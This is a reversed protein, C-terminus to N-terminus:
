NHNGPDIEFVWDMMQCDSGIGNPCEQKSGRIRWVGDDLEKAYYGYENYEGGFTKSWQKKGHADTKLIWVDYNGNGFSSTSGVILFGGDKALELSYAKDYGKGGFLQVWEENNNPFNKTLLIDGNGKGYDESTTSVQIYGGDAMYKLRNSQEPDIKEIRLNKIRNFSILMARVHGTEDYDPKIQYDYLLLADKQILELTSAEDKGYQQFILQSAKDLTITFGADVSKSYYQGTLANLYNKSPSFTVLKKYVSVASGPNALILDGDGFGIKISSNQEVVYISGSDKVLKIPNNNAKKWFLGDQSSIIKVISGKDNQYEGLISEVSRDSSFADTDLSIAKDVEKEPLVVSALKDAIYGSWITGNNSMVVVSLKQDPYRAIQAHYSGTGGSHHVAPYGLRDELELGYGYTDIEANEIPKQSVDLLRNGEKKANQIAIEFRLQDHLTTFLFGDGYLNTLMPYQQWIGNGWDSYPYAIDPIVHMYDKLFSTNKMGLSGFINKAYDHFPQGSVEAIIKTLLTYNSNSYLYESGPKFNLDNQKELLEIAYDNDLGEQRWWPDQQVSMLDYFDRIGSSHNLMHKIKITEEVEAYMNPLYKRMDDELSMKGDLILQLACLATFQKAVSAINFRSHRDVPVQHQLSALGLYKEYVTEGNLVIGAVLGPVGPKIQKELYEDIDGIQADTLKQAHLSSVHLGFIILFAVKLNM